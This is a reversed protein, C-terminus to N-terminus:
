SIAKFLLHFQDSVHRFARDRDNWRSIPVENLPYKIPLNAFVSEQWRYDRLLVPVVRCTDAARGIIRAALEDGFPSAFFDASFFLILVDAQNIARHYGAEKDEGALVTEHIWATEVRGELRINTFHKDLELVAEHDKWDALYLVQLIKKPRPQAAVNSGLLSCIQELFIMPQDSVFNLRYQTSFFVRTSAPLGRLNKPHFGYLAEAKDTFRLIYLLVRLYWDEFDFGLFLFSKAGDLM